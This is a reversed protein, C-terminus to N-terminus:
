PALFIGGMQRGCPGEGCQSSRRHSFFLNEQSFTCLDVHHIRDRVLGEDCMQRRLFGPLDLLFRGSESAVTFHVQYDDRVQLFREWVDQGVMFATPGICPGVVAVIRQRRAGLREMAAMCAPVVGGVAGRWGAHAAGIVRALPDVLLVPACDAVLIGLVWGPVDTVLADGEPPEDAPLCVQDGHVQRLLCLRQAPAGLLEMLRRRNEVVREPRDGVHDGLNFGAHGGQSVGPHRTTFFVHVGSLGPLHKPFLPPIDGPFKAVSRDIHSKEM